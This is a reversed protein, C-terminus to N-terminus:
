VFCQVATDYRLKGNYWVMENQYNLSFSNLNERKYNKKNKNRM